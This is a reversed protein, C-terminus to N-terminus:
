RSIGKERVEEPEKNVNIVGLVLNRFVLGLLICNLLIFVRHNKLPPPPPPPHVPQILTPPFSPLPTSM